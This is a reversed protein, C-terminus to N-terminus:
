KLIGRAILAQVIEAHTDYKTGRAKFCLYRDPNQAELAKFGEYVKRHFALTEKELRDSGKGGKRAFGDDPNVDMFITLDVAVGAQSANCLMSVTDLDLGRAFGQYATTSDSYRDCFVNLGAELAPKIVQETHQARAACYLLLETTDTMEANEPDLILARIKESIPTGGPERTFLAEVGHSQCYEKLLRVQTSKGVGECGEVTIFKGRAM